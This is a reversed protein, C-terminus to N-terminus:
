YYNELFRRKILIQIYMIDFVDKKSKKKEIELLSNFKALSKPTYTYKTEKDKSQSLVKDTLFKTASPSFAAFYINNGEIDFEFSIM